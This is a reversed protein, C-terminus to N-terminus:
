RAAAALVQAARTRWSHDRVVSQRSEEIESNSRREESLVTDLLREFDEKGSFIRVDAGSRAIARADQSDTCLVSMGLATYEYLKLPSHYMTDSSSKQHSAIGIDWGTMIDFADSPAVRGRFRVLDSLGEREVMARLNPLDAGDGVIEFRLDTGRRNAVAAISEIIEDLRHWKVVSGVFGIVRISDPKRPYEALDARVGNPIVIIKDPEISAFKVLEDALNQSVAVVIDARRLVRRELYAALREAKLVNRDRATERSLVGNAEVIRVAQRKGFHFSTLSQLVALREYIIEPRPAVLSRCFVNLGCWVAAALRVADALWVKSESAKAYDTQKIQAFRKMFPFGSALFIRTTCGNEDLGRVFNVIHTRPGPTASEAGLSIRFGGVLYHVQLKTM